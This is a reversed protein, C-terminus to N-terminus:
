NHSDRIKILLESDFNLKNEELRNMIEDHLSRMEIVLEVGLPCHKVSVGRVSGRIVGLTDSDHIIGIRSLIRITNWLTAGERTKFVPTGSRFTNSINM